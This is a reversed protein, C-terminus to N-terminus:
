RIRLPLTNPSVDEIVFIREGPRAMNHQERALHAIGEPTKYFDVKEKYNKVFREKEALIESHIEIDRQLSYIKRIEFVCATTAILSLLM